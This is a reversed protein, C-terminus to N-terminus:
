LIAGLDEVSPGVAVEVLDTPKVPLEYGYSLNDESGSVWGEV